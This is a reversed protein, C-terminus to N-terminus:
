FGRESNSIRYYALLALGGSTLMLGPIGAEADLLNISDLFNATFIGAGLAFLILGWKLFGKGTRKNEIPDMGQEIMAMRERNRSTVILYTVGFVTFGGMIMAVMAVVAELPHM